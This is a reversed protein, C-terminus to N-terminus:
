SKAGNMHQTKEFVGVLSIGNGTYQTKIEKFGCSEVLTKLSEGSFAHVHEPNLPIGQTVNEDPVAVILKGGSKLVKNWQKITRISDLCHELVHRAVVTDQSFEPFPLPEQVDAEVDAVSSGPVHANKDGKAVRDVGVANPVTKKPGCGLEVISEGDIFQRVFDGEVDIAPATQDVPRNSMTSFFDKFGHKRILAQNTKEIKSISNWGDVQNPKGHVREGTKFGHHILFAMPNVLIKKGAKKFRISLDFDDGGPLTTDVGGVKDLHERRVMVTFFILFPAEVLTSPCHPSFISQIGSSVTTTPGVAAVDHNNFPYLLNWYFRANAQPIFTDDNQFVVFPAESIKLAHELGGEWGLNKGPNLVVIDKHKFYKEIPDSGNNVIYLRATGELIGTKVISNVCPILYPLNNWTPIIIDFLKKSM